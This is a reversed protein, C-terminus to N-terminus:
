VTCVSRRASRWGTQEGLGRILACSTLVSCPIIHPACSDSSRLFYLTGMSSALGSVGHCDGGDFGCATVNCSIDCTGDGIWSEV